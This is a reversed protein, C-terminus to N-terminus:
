SLIMIKLFIYFYASFVFLISMWKVLDADTFRTVKPEVPEDDNFDRSDDEEIM